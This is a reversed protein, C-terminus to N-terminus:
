GRGPGVEIVPASLEAAALLDLNGRFTALTTAASSKSSASSRRGPFADRVREPRTDSTYASYLGDLRPRLAAWAAELAPELRGAGMASVFVQQGRNAFATALPDVDANAGGLSRVEMLQVPGSRFLEALALADDPALQPLFGNRARRTQQGVHRSDLPAVVAPYPVVQAQKDIVPGIRLLRDLAPVAADIDDAGWVNVAQAIPPQGARSPLLYLFSTLERPATAMVEAWRVLSPATDTIDFTFASFVVDRVPLAVLELATVVGLNAGAGRVAWFLDPHTTDDARDQTGDALVLEAAAAHDITLGFRRVLYGIGGATGLGGVGVDGYNGSTM